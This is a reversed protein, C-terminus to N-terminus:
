NNHRPKLQGIPQTTDKAMNDSSVLTRLRRSWRSTVSKKDQNLLRKQQALQEYDAMHQKALQYERM